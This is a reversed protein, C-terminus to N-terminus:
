RFFKKWYDEREADKYRQEDSETPVRYKEMVRADERANASRRPPDLTYHRSSSGIRVSSRGPEPQYPYPNPYSPPPYAPTPYSPPSYQYPAPAYSPPSPYMSYPHPAYGLPPSQYMPPHPYMPPPQSYMPPQPYAPAPQYIPPPPYAPAAHSQRYYDHHSRRMAEAMEERERRKYDYPAKYPDRGPITVARSKASSHEKAKKKGKGRSPQDSYKFDM